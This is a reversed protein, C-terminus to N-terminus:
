CDYHKEKHLDELSNWMEDVMEMLVVTGKMLRRNMISLQIVDMKKADGKMSLCGQLFEEFHITGSQDDDLLNFLAGAESTDLGIHLCMAVVEEDSLLQLFEEKTLMGSNDDDITNFSHRLVESAYEMEERQKMLIAVRDSAAAQMAAECFIGTLINLVGFIMLCVFIIWIVTFMPSIRALPDAVVPWESGGSIAGFLTLMTAQVSSYLKHVQETLSDELPDVNFMPLKESASPSGDWNGTGGPSCNGLQGLEDREDAMAKYHMEVGQLMIVGALFTLFFMLFLAWLLTSLSGIMSLIMKRVGHLHRFVKLVKMVKALRMVRIFKMLRGLRLSRTMGVMSAMSDLFMQLASSVLIVLDFINWKWDPGSCLAGTTRLNVCLELTMWCVFGYELHKFMSLDLEEPAPGRRSMCLDVGMAQSATQNTEMAVCLISAMIILSCAIKFSVSNGLRVIPDSSEKLSKPPPLTAKPELFSEAEKRLTEMEKTHSRHKKPKALKNGALDSADQLLALPEESSSTQNTGAARQMEQFARGAAGSPDLRTFLQRHFSAQSKHLMDLKQELSAMQDQQERRIEEVARMVEKLGFEASHAPWM